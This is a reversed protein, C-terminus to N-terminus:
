HNAKVMISNITEIIFQNCYECRNGSAPCIFIYRENSLLSEYEESFKIYNYLLILFEMNGPKKEVNYEGFIEAILKRNEKRKWIREVIKRMDREVCLKTTNHIKAIEVYLVKTVPSFNKKNGDIFNMSSLIYECGKYMKHIGLKHLTRLTLAENKM